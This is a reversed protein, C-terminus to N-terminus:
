FEIGNATCLDAFDGACLEAPDVFGDRVVTDAMNSKDVTVLDLLISPVMHSEADYEGNVLQPGPTLGARVIVAVAAAAAAQRYIPKYVTMCQWDALVNQLGTLTADQGTTPVTRPGVGNNKLVSNVSQAMPDHGSLVANIEPNAQWAQEFMTLGVAPDWNPVRVAGVKTAAGSDYLKNLVSDYGREVLTANNDTPSGGLHFIQPDEVNWDDLCKVLGEGMREGVNQNDFSVYFSASGLLTLRDYDIVKVGQAVADAQISASSGSDLNTILIVSAGDTIAQEAQTRQTQPSGQANLIIYDDTTLGMEAFARVFGPADATMWRPSSRTDPLLLAIKGEGAAALDKLPALKAFVDEPGGEAFDSVKLPIEEQAHPSPSGGVLIAVAAASLPGVRMARIFEFAM